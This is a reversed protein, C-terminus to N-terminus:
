WFILTIHYGTLM